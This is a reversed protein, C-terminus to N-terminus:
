QEEGGSVDLRGGRNVPVWRGKRSVSGGVERRQESFGRGGGNVSM